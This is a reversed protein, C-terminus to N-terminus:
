KRKNIASLFGRLINLENKELHSRNFLRRIRKLLLKPHSPDLLGLDELTAQWHQYFGEMEEHNALAKPENVFEHQMLAAMRLEYVVVQVAAALNLSSFNSNTPIHIHYHCSALEDNSLGNQENGFIIATKQPSELVTLAAEKPNKLPWPLHRSRASTGLILEYEALAQHFDDAIIANQLIDDAGSARAISEGNPLHKPTVLVLQSLGMNKMARAAAGINGPHSTRVLVISIHSLDLM